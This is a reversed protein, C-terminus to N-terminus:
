LCISRTDTELKKGDFFDLVDRYVIDREKERLIEHRLGKYLVHEIDKYGISRMFAMSAMWKDYSGIVPDDSGAIFLIPMDPKLVKQDKDYSAKLLRFLDLYGDLTFTFGDKPDKNYEEVNAPDKSLWSYTKGEGKFPKDYAGLALSTILNSRYRLGKIKAMLSTVAIGFDVLGNACPTGCLVLKDNKGYRSIYTRAVLSGMSHGFLYVPLGFREKAYSIVDDVDKVIAKGSPDYMYGYDEKNIVSEGHGRQDHIIVDYGNACLFAMFGKYREKHETMGHVIHIVAKPEDCLLALCDLKLGDSSSTITFREEKM